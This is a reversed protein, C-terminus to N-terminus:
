QRRSKWARIRDLAKKYREGGGATAPASTKELPEYQITATKEKPQVDQGTRRLYAATVVLGLLLALLLLGGLIWGDRQPSVVAPAPPQTKPSDDFPHKVAGGLDYGARGSPAVSKDLVDVAQIAIM